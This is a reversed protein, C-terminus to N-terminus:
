CAHNCREALPASSQLFQVARLLNGEYLLHKIQATSTFGFLRIFHHTKPENSLQLCAKLRTSIIIKSIKM